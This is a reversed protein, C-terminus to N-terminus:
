EGSDSAVEFRMGHDPAVVSRRARCAEHLEIRILITDNTMKNPRAGPVGTLQHIPRRYENVYIGGGFLHHENSGARIHGLSQQIRCVGFYPEGSWGDREKRHDLAVDTSTDLVNTEAIVVDREKNPNHQPRPADPRHDLDHGGERHGM